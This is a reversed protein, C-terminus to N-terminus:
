YNEEPPEEIEVQELVHICKAESNPLIDLDISTVKISPTDEYINFYNLVESFLAPKNSEQYLALALRWRTKGQYNASTFIISEGREISISKLGTGCWPGPDIAWKGGIKRDILCTPYTKDYGSFHVARGLNTLKFDVHGCDHVKVVEIKAAMERTSSVYLVSALILAVVVLTGIITKKM